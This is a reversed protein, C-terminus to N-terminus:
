PKNIKHYLFYSAAVLVLAAAPLIWKGIPDGVAIHSYLAGVMDFVLGAYAWEKLRPFRPFVIALAALLKVVGIFPILYEPYGLHDFVAVAEPMKILDAIGTILLFAAVLGTTIWYAVRM